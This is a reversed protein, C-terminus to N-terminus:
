KFLQGEQKVTLDLASVRLTHVEDQGAAAAEGPFKNSICIRLAM